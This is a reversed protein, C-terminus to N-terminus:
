SVGTKNSLFVVLDDFSKLALVEQNTISVGLFEEADFVIEIMTLSDVGLDEVLLMIGKKDMYITDFKEGLQYRLIEEVVRIALERSPCNAWELVTNRFGVPYSKLKERVRESLRSGSPKSNELTTTEM